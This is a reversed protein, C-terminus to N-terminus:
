LIYLMYVATAKKHHPRQGCIYILQQNAVQESKLLLDSLMM